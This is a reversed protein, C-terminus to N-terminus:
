EEEVNEEPLEFTSLAKFNISINSNQSGELTINENSPNKAITLVQNSITGITNQGVSVGNMVQMTDSVYEIEGWQYTVLIKIYIDKTKDFAFPLANESYITEFAITNEVDQLNEAQASYINTLENQNYGFSLQVNKIIIPEETNSEIGNIITFSELSIFELEACEFLALYNGATEKNVLFTHEASTSAVKNNLLWCFFKNEDYPMAKITVETGEEYSEGGGVVMGYNAGNIQTTIEYFNPTSTCGALVFCFCAIFLCLVKTIVKNKM